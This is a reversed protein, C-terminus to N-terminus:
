EDTKKHLIKKKLNKAAEGAKELAGVGLYAPLFAYFIADARLKGLKTAEQAETPPASTPPAAIVGQMAIIAIVIFFIAIFKMNITERETRDEFVSSKRIQRVFLNWKYIMKLANQLTQFM